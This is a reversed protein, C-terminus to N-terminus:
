LLGNAPMIGYRCVGRAWSNWQVEGTALDLFETGRRGGLIYKNTAKNQYCRHHHLPNEQAIEMLVDGTELDHKVAFYPGWAPGSYKSPKPPEWPRGGGIWLAGDAIFVDTSQSLTLERDWRIDGTEGDLLTVRDVNACVVMGDYAVRILVAPMMWKEEGTVLDVCFVKGSRHYLARDGDACLSKTRLGRIDDGEKRWLTEGTEADLAVLAVQAQNDSRKLDKIIPAASDRNSLPSDDTLELESVKDMEAVREDTVQRVVVLLVGDHYVIEEAGETGAFERITEGTAADIESLALHIGLTAYVRDGVAVLRRQLQQPTQGWNVIHPYWREIPKEWLLVGNYADRAMVKWQAPKRIFGIAAQDSIYFIRGNASVVAHLSPIYEHSRTHPPNATWQLVGPPGVLEDDAVANGSADHLFHTWEDTGKAPPKITMEWEDGDPVYAVGGPVLVRLMEDTEPARRATSVLLNVTGDAYPLREERWVEASVRGYRGLSDIHQRAQKVNKASSDLGHVVFSESAGLAATLEGDGCGVHVIVGGTVGTTGLIDAAEDAAVHASCATVMIIALVIGFLRTM